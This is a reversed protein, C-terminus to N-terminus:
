RYRDVTRLHHGGCLRTLGTVTLVGPLVMREGRPSVGFLRRGIVYAMIATVALVELVPLEM